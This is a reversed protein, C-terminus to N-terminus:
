INQWENQIFGMSNRHRAESNNNNDIQSIDNPQACWKFLSRFFFDCRFFVFVFFLFSISLFELSACISRLWTINLLQCEVYIENFKTGSLSSLPSSSISLIFSCVFSSAFFHVLCHMWITHFSLHLLQCDCGSLVFSIWTWNMMDYNFVKSLAMSLLDYYRCSQSCVFLPVWFIEWTSLNQRHNSNSHKLASIFMCMFHQQWLNREKERKRDTEGESEKNSNCKQTIDSTELLASQSVFAVCCGSCFIFCCCFISQIQDVSAFHKCAIQLESHKQWKSYPANSSM